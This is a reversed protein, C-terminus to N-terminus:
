DALGEWKKRMARAIAYAHVEAKLLVEHAPSLVEPTDFLATSNYIYKIGVCQTGIALEPIL